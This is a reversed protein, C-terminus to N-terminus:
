NGECADAVSGSGDAFENITTLTLSDNSGIVLKFVRWVNYNNPNSTPVDFRRSTSDTVYQVVAESSEIGGNAQGSFNHVCFYYTGANVGKVITLIEPGFGTTDDTDLLIYPQATVSGKQWDQTYDKNNFYIQIGDGVFHTDLDEPEEGWSLVIRALPNTLDIQGVNACSTESTCKYTNNLATGTIPDSLFAAKRAVCSYQGAPKVRTCFTANITSYTYSMSQYDVGRCKIQANPVITGFGDDVIGRLCTSSFWVGANWWGLRDIIGAYYRSEVTAGCNRACTFYSNWIGTYTDFFWSAVSAPNVSADNCDAETGFIALRATAQSGQCLDLARGDQSCAINIMASTDTLDVSTGNDATFDGPSLEIDNGTVDLPTISCLIDGTVQTTRDSECVSGADLEVQTGTTTDVVTGDNTDIDEITQERVPQMEVPPLSLLARAVVTVTRCVDAFGAVSFCLSIGEGVAIDDAFFYGQSNATAVVTGAISAVVGDIANGSNANVVNGAICGSNAGGCGDDTSGGGGDGSPCASYLIIAAFLAVAIVLYIKKM